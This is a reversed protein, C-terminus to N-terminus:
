MTWWGRWALDVRKDFVASRLSTPVINGPPVYELNGVKGELIGNGAPMARVGFGPRGLGVSGDYLMYLENLSTLIAAYGNRQAWRITMGDKCALTQAALLYVTMGVRKYYNATMTCGGATLTPSFEAAYFTGQPAAGTLADPTARSYMVFTGGSATIKLKTTFEYLLDAGAPDNIANKYIVSGGNAAASWLGDASTGSVTGNSLWNAAPIGGTFADSVFYTNAALPLVACLTWLLSRM